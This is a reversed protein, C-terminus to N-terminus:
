TGRVKARRRKMEKERRRLDGQQPIKKGDLVVFLNPLAVVGHITQNRFFLYHYYVPSEQLLKVWIQGASRPSPIPRSGSLFGPIIVLMAAQSSRIEKFDVECQFTYLPLPRALCSQIVISLTPPKSALSDARLDAPVRRDHTRAGGGAGQGSPPGALPSSVKEISTHCDDTWRM